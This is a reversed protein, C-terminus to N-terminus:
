LIPPAPDLLSLFKDSVISVEATTDVIARLKVKGFLIPVYFMSSSRIKNLVVVEVPDMHGKSQVKDSPGVSSDPPDSVNVVQVFPGVSSTLRTVLM